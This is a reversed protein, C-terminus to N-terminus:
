QGYGQSEAGPQGYGAQGYGAQGYGQQGPAPQGYGPQSYGPPGYEPQQAYSAEGSPSAGPAGSPNAGFAITHDSGSAGSDSDQPGENGASPESAWPRVYEPPEWGSQRESGSDNDRM